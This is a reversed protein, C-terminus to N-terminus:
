LNDLLNNLNEFLKINANIPNKWDWASFYNNNAQLILENERGIYYKSNYHNLYYFINKNLCYQALQGGGSWESILM